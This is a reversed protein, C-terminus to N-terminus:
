RCLTGSAGHCCTMNLAAIALAMLSRTLRAAIAKHLTSCIKWIASPSTLCAGRVFREQRVSDEFSAVVGSLDTIGNRWHLLYLDLHDTGLRTLSGECARAVGNGTAHTPLVKSVLFVHDRQGAIVRGILEESHGNSYAEATDILTM